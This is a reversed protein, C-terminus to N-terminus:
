QAESVALHSNIPVWASLHIVATIAARVLAHIERFHLFARLLEEVQSRIGGLDWEALAASQLSNCGLPPFRIRFPFRMQIQMSRLGDEDLFLRFMKKFSETMRASEMSFRKPQDESAKCVKM